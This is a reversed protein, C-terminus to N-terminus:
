HDTYTLAVGEIFPRQGEAGWIVSINGGGSCRVTPKHLICVLCIIHVTHTYVICVYM